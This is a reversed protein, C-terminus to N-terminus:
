VYGSRKMMRELKNIEDITKKMDDIFPELKLEHLLNVYKTEDKGLKLWGKAYVKHTINDSNLTYVIELLCAELKTARLEKEPLDGNLITLAVNNALEKRTLMKMTKGTKHFFGSGDNFGSQQLLKQVTTKNSHELFDLEFFISAKSKHKDDGVSKLSKTLEKRLPMLITVMLNLVELYAQADAHEVAKKFLGSVESIRKSATAQLTWAASMEGRKTEEKFMGALVKDLNDETLTVLSELTIYPNTGASTNVTTNHQQSFNIVNLPEVFHFGESIIHVNHHPCYESEVWDCQETPKGINFGIM